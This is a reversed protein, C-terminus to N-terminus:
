IDYMFLKKWKAVTNRSLRFHHATQTNNLQYEKQYELIKLIAKKSYSKHRSNIEANRKNRSGFLKANIELVDLETIEKKSLISHVLQQKKPFKKRIIDTYIRKYNPQPNEKM